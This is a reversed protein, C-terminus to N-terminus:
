APVKNTSLLLNAFDSITKASEPDRQRCKNKIPGGLQELGDQLVDIVLADINAFSLEAEDVNLAGEDSDIILKFDERKGFRVANAFQIRVLNIHAAACKINMEKIAAKLSLENTNENILNAVLLEVAQM